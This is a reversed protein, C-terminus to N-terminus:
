HFDDRYHFHNVRMVVAEVSELRQRLQMVHQLHPPPSTKNTTYRNLSRADLRQRLQLALPRSELREHNWWHNCCHVHNRCVDAVAHWFFSIPHRSPHLQQLMSHRNQHLQQLM